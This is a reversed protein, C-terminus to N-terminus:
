LSTNNENNNNVDNESVNGMDGRTQSYFGSSAGSCTPPSNSSHGKKKWFQIFSHKKAPPSIKPSPSLNESDNESSEGSTIALASASANDISLASRQTTQPFTIAPENYASPLPMPLEGPLTFLPNDRSLSSILKKWM